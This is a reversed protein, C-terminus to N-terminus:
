ESLERIKDRLKAAKEYDETAIAARLLEKLTSIDQVDEDLVQEVSKTEDVLHESALIVDGPKRMKPHKGKHETNGQLQKINEEILIGFVEYCDRCGFRSDKVFEEYGTKCSPCTVNKYGVDSRSETETLLSSLFRGLSTDGTFINQLGIDLEKACSLCYIHHTQAGNRHETVQVVAERLRCKECIM